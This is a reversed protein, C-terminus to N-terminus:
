RTDRGDAEGETAPKEVLRDYHLKTQGMRVNYYEVQYATDETSTVLAYGAKKIHKGNMAFVLAGLPMKARVPVTAFPESSEPAEWFTVEFQTRSATIKPQAQVSLEAELEGIQERMKSLTASINARVEDSGKGGDVEGTLHLLVDSLRLLISAHRQLEM